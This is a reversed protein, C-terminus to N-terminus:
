VAASGPETATSGSFFNGFLTVATVILTLNTLLPLDRALAAQWALQGIGPSDCIAEVPIAATFATSLSVGFLAVLEPTISPLIHWTLIRIKGLGKARATIVHDRGSAELFLNRAYRFVRPFIVAAICLAAPARWYLFILALVAAPVCLFIGTGITSFLDFAPIRLFHTLVALSLGCLWGALLGAAVNCLTLPFREKLLETVPRELSRSVGLDGSLLGTLYHLYFVPLNRDESHSRRLAAVSGARLRPDLEREDIGFGPGFRVLTAGLFGAALLTLLLVSLRGRLSAREM